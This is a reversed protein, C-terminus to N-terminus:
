QLRLHLIHILKAHCAANCPPRASKRLRKRRQKEAESMPTSNEKDAVLGEWHKAILAVDQLVADTGQGTMLNAASLGTLLASFLEMAENAASSGGQNEINISDHDSSTNAHTRIDAEECMGVAQCCSDLCGIGHFARTSSSTEPALLTM